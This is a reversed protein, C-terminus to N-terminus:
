ESTAQQTIDVARPRSKFPRIDKMEHILEEMSQPRQSRKKALMRAILDALETSVNSNMALLSPVAASLHRNLLENPSVATYPPRGGLLEFFMCGLGYIDSRPDVAQGRIQEPSMYSRTGKVVKNRGGFLKGLGGAARRAIAFDILKVHCENNVLFNDPKVDCHVWGQDHLYRLGEASQEAISAFNGLIRDADARIAQKLNISNFYELVLFPIDRDIESEYIEIVNPNKFPRGVALEHKLYAIEERDKAREQLLAKLAVRKGSITHVAEWIACTQGTRV